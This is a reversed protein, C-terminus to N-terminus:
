GPYKMTDGPPAALAADIGARWGLRSRLAKGLVGGGKGWPEQEHRRVAEAQGATM